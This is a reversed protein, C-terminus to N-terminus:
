IGLCAIHLMRPPVPLNQNMNQMSIRNRGGATRRTTGLAHQRHRESERSVIHCSRCDQCHTQAERCVLSLHTAHHGARIADAVLPLIESGCATSQNPSPLPAPGSANLETVTIATSEKYSPAAIVHLEYLLSRIPSLPPSHQSHVHHHKWSTYRNDM